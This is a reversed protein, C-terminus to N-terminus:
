ALPIETSAKASSGAIIHKRGPLLPFGCGDLLVNQGKFLCLGFNSLEKFFTAFPPISSNETQRLSITRFGRRFCGNFRTLPPFAEAPTPCLGVNVKSIFTTFGYSLMERKIKIFIGKLLILYVV